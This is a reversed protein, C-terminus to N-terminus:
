DQNSRLFARVPLADALNMLTRNFGGAYDFPIDSVGGGVRRDPLSLTFRGSYVNLIKCFHTILFHIVRIWLNVIYVELLKFIM